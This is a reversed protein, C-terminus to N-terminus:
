INTLELFNIALKHFNTNLFFCHNANLNTDIVAHITM